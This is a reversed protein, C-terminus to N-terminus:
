REKSPLRSRIDESLDVYERIAPGSAVSIAVDRLGANITITSIAGACGFGKTDPLDGAEVKFLKGTAEERIFRSTHVSIVAETKSNRCLNAIAAFLANGFALLSESEGDFSGVQRSAAVLENRSFYLRGIMKPPEKGDSVREGFGLTESESRVKEGSHPIPIVLINPPMLNLVQNKTMGLKLTVGGFQISEQATDAGLCTAFPIFLCILLLRM